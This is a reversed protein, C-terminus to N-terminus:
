VVCYMPSSTLLLAKSRKPRCPVNLDRASQLTLSSLPNFLNHQNPCMCLISSFLIRLLTNYIFKPVVLNLPLCLFLHCYSTLSSPLSTQPSPHCSFTCLLSSYFFSRRVALFRRMRCTGISYFLFAVPHTLKSCGDLTESVEDRKRVQCGIFRSFCVATGFPHLQYGLFMKIATLIDQLYM